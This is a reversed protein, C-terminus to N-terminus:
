IFYFNNTGNNYQVCPISMITANEDDYQIANRELLKNTIAQILLLRLKRKDIDTYKDTNELYDNIRNSRQDNTLKMWPKKYNDINIEGINVAVETNNRLQKKFNNIREQKEEFRRMKKRLNVIDRPGKFETLVKPDSVIIQNPRYAKSRHKKEINHSNTINLMISNFIQNNHSDESM